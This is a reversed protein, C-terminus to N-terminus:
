SSMITDIETHLEKSYKCNHYKVNIFVRSLKIINDIDKKKNLARVVFWGRELFQEYSEGCSRQLVVYKGNKIFVSKDSSM